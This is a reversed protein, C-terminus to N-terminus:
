ILRALKHLRLGHEPQKTLKISTSKVPKLPLKPTQAETENSASSLPLSQLIFLVCVSITLTQNEETRISM